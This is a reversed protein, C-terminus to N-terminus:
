GYCLLKTNQNIYSKKIKNKRKVKEGYGEVRYFAEAKLGRHSIKSGIAQM